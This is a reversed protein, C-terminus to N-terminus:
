IHILSLEADQDSLGSIVAGRRHKVIRRPKGDERRETVQFYVSATLIYESM